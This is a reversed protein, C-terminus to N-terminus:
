QRANIERLIELENTVAKISATIRRLIREELQMLKMKQQKLVRLAGKLDESYELSIKKAYFFEEM